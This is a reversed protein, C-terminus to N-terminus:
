SIWTPRAISLLLQELMLKKNESRARLCEDTGIKGTPYVRLSEKCFNELYPLKELETYTPNDPLQSVEERLKDQIDQHLVLIYLSWSLMNASTDHGAAM